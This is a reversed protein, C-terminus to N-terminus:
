LSFSFVCWWRVIPRLQQPKLRFIKTSQLEHQSRSANNRSTPAVEIIEVKGLKWHLEGEKKEGGNWLKCKNRQQQEKRNRCVSEVVNKKGRFSHSRAKSRGEGSEGCCVILRGVSVFHALAHVCESCGFARLCVCASDTCCAADSVCM